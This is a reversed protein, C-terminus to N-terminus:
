MRPAAVKIMGIYARAAKFGKEDAVVAALYCLQRTMTLEMRAEAIKKRIVDKESL